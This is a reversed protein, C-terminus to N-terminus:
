YAEFEFWDDLDFSLDSGNPTCTVMVTKTIRDGGIWLEDEPDFAGFLEHNIKELEKGKTIDKEKV